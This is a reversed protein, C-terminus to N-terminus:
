GSVTTADIFAYEFKANGALLQDRLFAANQVNKFLALYVSHPHPIHELQVSTVPIAMTSPPPLAPNPLLRM